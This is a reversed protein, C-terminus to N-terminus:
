TWIPERKDLEWRESLYLQYALITDDIHKYSIGMDQRAACNAFPTLEGNPIFHANNKLVESLKLYSMHWKGRRRHYETALAVFHEYLWLYNARTARVWINAPHNKHTSKYLVSNTCGYERLATSLMQTSELIMKNCRLTDLYKASEIPCNSTVFINM